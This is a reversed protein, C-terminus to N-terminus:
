KKGVGFVRRCGWLFPRLGYYLFFLARPLPVYAWDRPSMLLVSKIYFIRDAFSGCTLRRLQLLTPSPKGQNTLIIKIAARTLRDEPWVDKKFFLVLSQCAKYATLERGAGKFETMQLLRLCDILWTLRMWATEQAHVLSYNFFVQPNLTRAALHEINVECCHLALEEYTQMPWKPNAFLRQHLELKVSDKSFCVDARYINEKTNLYDYKFSLEKKFGAQQLLSLARPMDKKAILIDIDSSMKLDCQGYLLSSAAFGKLLIMPLQHEHFLQMVELAIKKQSNQARRQLLVKQILAMKIHPPCALKEQQAYVLFLVKHITILKLFREWCLKGAPYEFLEPLCVHLILKLEPSALLLGEEGM